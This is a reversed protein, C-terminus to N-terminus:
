CTPFIRVLDARGVRPLEGLREVTRIMKKCIEETQAVVRILLLTARLLSMICVLAFTPPPELMQKSMSYHGSQWSKCIMDKIYVCLTLSRVPLVFIEHSFVCVLISINETALLVRHGSFLQKTQVSAQLAM